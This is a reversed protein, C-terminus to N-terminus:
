GALAPRIGRGTQEERPNRFLLRALAGAYM